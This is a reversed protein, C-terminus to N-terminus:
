NSNDIRVSIVSQGIKQGALRSLAHHEASDSTTILFRNEKSSAPDGKPLPHVKYAVVGARYLWDKVEMRTLPHTGELVFNKM